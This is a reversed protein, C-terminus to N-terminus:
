FGIEGLANNQANLLAQMSLATVIMDKPFPVLMGGDKTFVAYELKNEPSYRFKVFIPASRGESVMQASFQLVTRGASNKESSWGVNRFLRNKGSFLNGVTEGEVDPFKDKKLNRLRWSDLEKKLEPYSEEVKDFDAFTFGSLANARKAFDYYKKNEVIKAVWGNKDLKSLDEKVSEEESNKPAAALASQAATSPQVAGRQAQKSSQEGCGALAVSILTLIGITTKKMINRETSFFM